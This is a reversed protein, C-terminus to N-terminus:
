LYMINLFLVATLLFIWFLFTPYNMDCYESISRINFGYDLVYVISVENTKKGYQTLLQTM